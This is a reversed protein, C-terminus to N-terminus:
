RTKIKEDLATQKVLKGDQYVLYIFTDPKPCNTSSYSKSYDIFTKKDDNKTGSFGFLNNIISILRRNHSVGCHPASADDEDSTRFVILSYPGTIAGSSIYVLWQIGDNSIFTPTKNESKFGSEDTCNVSTNPYLNFRSALLECFKTDGSYTVGELMVADTNLLGRTITTTCVGESNCTSTKKEPYLVDDNVIDSVAHEIAYSGKKYLADNKDPLSNVIVPMAIAALAGIIALTILGEALTYGFKLNYRNSM